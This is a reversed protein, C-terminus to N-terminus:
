PINLALKVKEYNFYSINTMEATFPMNYNHLGKQLRKFKNKKMCNVESFTITSVRGNM